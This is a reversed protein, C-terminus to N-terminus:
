DCIVIEQKDFKSRRGWLARKFVMARVNVAGSLLYM